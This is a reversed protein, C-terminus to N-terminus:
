RSPRALAFCADPKTSMLLEIVVIGGDPRHVNLGPEILGADVFRFPPFLLFSADDGFDLSTFSFLVQLFWCKGPSLNRGGYLEKALPNGAWQNVAM